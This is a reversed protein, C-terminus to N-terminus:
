AFNPASLEKTSKSAWEICKKSSLCLEFRVDPVFYNKDDM